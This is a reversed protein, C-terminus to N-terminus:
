EVLHARGKVVAAFHVVPCGLIKCICDLLQLDAVLEAFIQFLHQPRHELILGLARIIYDIQEVVGDLLQLLIMGIQRLAGECQILLSPQLLKLSQNGLQAPHIVGGEGDVHRNHLLHLTIQVLLVLDNAVTLEQFAIAAAGVGEVGNGKASRILLGSNDLLVQVTQHVLAIHVPQHSVQQVFHVAM